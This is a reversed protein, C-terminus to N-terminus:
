RDYKDLIGKIVGESNLQDLAAQWQYIIRDDTEKNFAIYLHGSMITVNPIVEIQDLIGLKKASNIAAYYATPWVDIRGKVLRTLNKEDAGSQM